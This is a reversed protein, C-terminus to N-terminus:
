DGKEGMFKSYTESDLREKCNPCFFDSDEEDEIEYGNIEWTWRIRIQFDLEWKGLHDKGFVADRTRMEPM